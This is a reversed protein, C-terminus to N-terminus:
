LPKRGLMLFFRSHSHQWYEGSGVIGVVQIAGMVDKDGGVANFIHCLMNRMSLTFQLSGAMYKPSNTEAPCLKHYEATGIDLREGHVFPISSSCAAKRGFPSPEM